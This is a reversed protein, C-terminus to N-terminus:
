TRTLAGKPLGSTGPLQNNRSPGKSHQVKSETLQIGTAGKFVRIIHDKISYLFGILLQKLHGHDSLCLILNKIMTTVSFLDPLLGVLKSFSAIGGKEELKPTHKEVLLEVGAGKLDKLYYDVCIVVVGIDCGVVLCMPASMLIAHATIISNYVQNDSLYQVGPGSLELRILVSFATGILGSFLAFILYLTGIDKANCSM